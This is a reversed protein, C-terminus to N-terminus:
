FYLYYLKVKKLSNIETAPLPFKLFELINLEFRSSSSNTPIHTLDIDPSIFFKRTRNFQPLPLNNYVSPNYRGGLMGKAGYGLDINLWGPFNSNNGPLFSKINFSLWYTQGNYDKLWKETTNKGLMDPRYKPYDTPHYSWKFLIRQEKWALQQSIFLGSGLTNATMDGPSFGWESSFGDLIEITTLFVLGLAGGYWASRNNDVGAWRLAGYGINGVYYSTTMHGCKDMQLWESNDNFFHFKSHPYHKYWLKYLGTISVAYIVSEAIMVKGLRQRNLTHNDKVSISNQCYSINTFILSFILLTLTKKM